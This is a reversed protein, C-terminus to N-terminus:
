RYRVNQGKQQRNELKTQRKSKEPATAAGGAGGAGGVPTNKKFMPMVFPLIISGVKYTAYGPIVLYMYFVKKTGTIVALYNLFWTIYIIDYFYEYFGESIEEGARIMQLKKTVPDIRFDPRGVKEVSTELLIAPISFVLSPWFSSPRRFILHLLILVGNSIASRLHITNLTRTNLAALKKSGQAAMLSLVQTEEQM